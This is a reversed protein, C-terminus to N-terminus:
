PSGAPAPSARPDIEAVRFNGFRWVPRTYRDRFVAIPDDQAAPGDIVVVHTLKHLRALALVDDASTTNALVRYSEHDHWNAARGYGVFGSPGPGNLEYFGVRADPLTQNLYDAVIRQPDYHAVYERRAGANISCKPCLQGHTWSATSAFRLNGLCVAAGLVLIAIRTARRDPLDALAWGGLVGVLVLAPLLYRLYSQQLYVVVFFFVALGLCAWQVRPRRRFFAAAILPFLLLWQLGAAGSEGEIFRGSWMVIEYPTWPRLPQHYLPNDFSAATEFYRSRFLSNFFPFVPNGTRLWANAYPWAGIIAAVGVAVLMRPGLPAVAPLSRARWTVYALLPVLWMVSIVKTHMAGAALLALAPLAWASRSAGAGNPLEIAALLCALLFATWLNDGFLSGSVLAALPMSALACVSALALARPAHRIVLRYVIDLLLIGFCLNLLRAAGEGGLIYAAAFAFDAGLPMDAWAFRTVDFDWQHNAAFLQAFLLHVATADYGVEPKAAVFLQVVVITGLVATWAREIASFPSAGDALWEAMRGLLERARAPFTLVPLALMLVYVPVIHVKMTATASMVGIWLAFGALIALPPPLRATDRAAWALARDGVLWANFLMLAVTAVTGPSFLATAVIAATAVSAGRAHRGWVLMLATFGALAPFVVIAYEGLDLGWVPTADLLVFVLWALLTAHLALALTLVAARTRPGAVSM